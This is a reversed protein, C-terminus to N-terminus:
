LEGVLRGHLCLSPCLHLEVREKIVTISPPAYDVGRGLQKVEPFSGTGVPYSAPQTLRSLHPYDRKWRSKIGLSDLRYCTVIGVLGDQGV